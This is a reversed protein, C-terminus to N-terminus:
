DTKRNFLISYAPKLEDLVKNFYTWRYQDESLFELMEYQAVEDFQGGYGYFQNTMVNANTFETNYEFFNMAEDTSHGFGKIKQEKPHWFWTIEGALIKEGSNTFYLKSTVSKQGVGWEFTQETTETTWSGGVLFEFPKLPNNSIEPEQSLALPSISIFFLIIFLRM